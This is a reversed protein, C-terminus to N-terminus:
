RTFAYLCSDFIEANKFVRKKLIGELRYGAKELARRSGFNHAFPEAHIRALDYHAFGHGTLQRIADSMIGHGWFPEALWYGLEANKCYVDEELFIGISGVAEGDVDIARTCQRAEGAALCSLVYGRADEHTYPWPFADRLNDAIKKNNAYKAVSDIDSEQWPRLIFNM